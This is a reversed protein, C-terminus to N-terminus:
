KEMEVDQIQNVNIECIRQVHKVLKEIILRKMGVHQLVNIECIWRVRIVIKKMMM